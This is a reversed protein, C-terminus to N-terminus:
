LAATAVQYLLPQFLTYNNRDIVVVRGSGDQLAKAVEIGAFGGGVIVVCPSRASPANAGSSVMEADKTQSQPTIM